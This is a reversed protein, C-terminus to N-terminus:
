VRKVHELAYTKSGIRETIIKKGPNFVNNPDCVHKINQLCAIYERDYQKELYYTRVLGDNHDVSISGGLSLTLDYVREALEFLRFPEESASFDVLPVLRISGDGIHGAYTYTYPYEKLILELKELFTGYKEIPIITDEIIPAVRVSETSQDMLMKFSARRITFLAEVTNPDTVLFGEVHFSHLIELIRKQAQYTAEDTEESVQVFLTLPAGVSVFAIAQAEHPYHIKALEYTHTDFTEISEPNQERLAHLVEGLTRVSHLPACVLKRHAPIPTLRLTVSTIIGLTGQAGVFLRAINYTKKRPNYIKQIQYGAANKPTHPVNKEIVEKKETLLAAVLRYLEGELGQLHQKIEWEGETLEGFTYLNGDFLVVDISEVWDITAGYRVSLEGSANNGLMGGISCLNKSSTYPPFMLRHPLLAAEIDKFMVGSEVTITNHVTDVVSIGTLHRTVDIIIGENLSGGSMCTAAARVTLTHPAELRKNARVLQMIDMSSKPFLVGEPIVSFISADTSYAKKIADTHTYSLRELLDDFM